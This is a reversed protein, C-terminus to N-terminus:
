EDEPRTSRSVSRWRFGQRPRKLMPLISKTGTRLKTDIATRYRLILAESPIKQTPGLHMEPVQDPGDGTLPVTAEAWVSHPLGSLLLDPGASSTPQLKAGQMHLGFALYMEWFKAHFFSAIASNFNCDGTYRCFFEWLHEVFVKADAGDPDDRIFRYTQDRPEVENLSLKNM